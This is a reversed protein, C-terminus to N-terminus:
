KTLKDMIEMIEEIKQHADAEDGNKFAEEVCCGLHAHLVERNVKRLIAQTAMLQNSIDICYRDEEVMKLLGDLQGRATKLMRTVKDRDAVM